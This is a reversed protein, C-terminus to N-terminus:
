EKMKLKEIRDNFRKQTKNMEDKAEELDEFDNSVVYWTWFIFFRSMQHVTYTKNENKFIKFKNVMNENRYLM